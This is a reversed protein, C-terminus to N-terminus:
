KELYVSYQEDIITRWGDAKLERVIEPRAKSTVVCQINYKEFQEKRFQPNKFTADYLEFYHVGNYQWSPMRGDIFVKQDPNKGILYGGYDYYNFINGSCPHQGLYAAAKIPYTDASTFTGGHILGVIFMASTILISFYYYTFTGYKELLTQKLNLYSEEAYRMIGSMFFLYYRLSSIWAAALCAVFYYQKKLLVRWTPLGAFFIAIIFTGSVLFLRPYSFARWESIRSKLAVDGVISFIERYIYPGYPNICTAAFCATIITWPIPNKRVIKYFILMVLGVLFSGHLNAWLATLFPLIFWTRKQTSELLREYLAFFFLSWASPRALVFDVVSIYSVLIIPLVYKRSSLVFGAAWLASFVVLMLNKNIDVLFSVFVDHLWEANIWPFDSATYTFVDYAPIGHTRIYAGAQMHWGYDPDLSVSSRVFAACFILIFAAVIPFKPHFVLPKIRHAANQYLTRFTQVV